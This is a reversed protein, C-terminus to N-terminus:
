ISFGFFAQRRDETLKSASARNFFLDKEIRVGLRFMAIELYGGYWYSQYRAVASPKARVYEENIQVAGEAALQPMLYIRGGGELAWEKFRQKFVNRALYRYNIFASTDQQHKGLLRLSPAYRVVVNQNNSETGGASGVSNSKEERRSAEIGLTANPMPIGLTGAILNNFYLSGGYGTGTLGSKSRSGLESSDVVVATEALGYFTPELKPTPKEGQSTYFRYRLDQEASKQKVDLWDYFYWRKQEREKQRAGLGGFGAGSTSSASSPSGSQAWAASCTPVLVLFVALQTFYVKM